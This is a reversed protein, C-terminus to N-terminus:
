WSWQHGTRQTLFARAQQQMGRRGALAHLGDWIAKNRRTDQTQASRAHYFHLLISDRVWDVRGGALWCQTMFILDEFGWGRLGECYGGTAEWLPRGIAVVGSSPEGYITDPAVGTKPHQGEPRPFWNYSGAMIRNSSHEDMRMRVDGAVVLNMSVDAMSIARIIADPHAITDADVVIAVDWNGAARAANNRARSMSFEGPTEDAGEFIPLRVEDHYWDRVWKWVEDRRGNDPQIPVLLVTKMGM